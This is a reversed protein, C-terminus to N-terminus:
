GRMARRARIHFFNVLASMDADKTSINIFDIRHRRFLREREGRRKRMAEAYGERVAKSITDVPVIEGTEPDEVYVVGVDVMEEERPDVVCLPVLDHKTKTLRLSREWGDALFDSILFAISRHKTVKNLYDLGVSLDTGRGAPKFQLIESIVRLVHKKGKKPPVFLEVRDTFMVLGVRDNNKIASFALTAALKAALRSKSQHTTGFLESASADVLLMVTMEREEVFMKIYPANMRASVNWDILRVDDGIEYQRVQDFAMGRGKFVSQYQGALRDNVLARTVIELKRIEQFLEAHDM